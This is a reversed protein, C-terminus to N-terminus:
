PEADAEWALMRAFGQLEVPDLRRALDEAVRPAEMSRLARVVVDLAENLEDPQPASM